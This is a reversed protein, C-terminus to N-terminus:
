EGLVQVVVERNRPRNDFDILVINQWTGLLLEGGAFPVTLGPGMLSARVHSHGNGDHWTADHAYPLDSPAIRELAAPLDKRLGPEFETTTIAATSGPVFVTVLGERLGTSAVFDRVGDTIDHMDGHGRTGLSLTHRASRM